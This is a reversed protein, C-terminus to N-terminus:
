SGSYLVGRVTSRSRGWKFSTSSFSPSPAHLEGIALAGGDCVAARVQEHRRRGAGPLGLHQGATADVQDRIRLVRAVEIPQQHHRKRPRRRGLQAHPYGAHQAVFRAPRAAAVRCWKRALRQQDVRRVRRNVGPPPDRSCKGLRRRHRNERQRASASDLARRTSSGLPM